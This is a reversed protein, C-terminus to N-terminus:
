IAQLNMKSLPASLWGKLTLYYLGLYATQLKNTVEIIFPLYGPTQQQSNNYLPPPHPQGQRSFLM